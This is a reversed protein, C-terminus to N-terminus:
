SLHMIKLHFFGSYMKLANRAVYFRFSLFLFQMESIFFFLFIANIASVGLIERLPRRLTSDLEMLFYM